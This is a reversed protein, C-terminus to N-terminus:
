GAAQRTPQRWEPSSLRMLMVQAPAWAVVIASTAAVPAVGWLMGTVTGGVFSGLFLATNYAGTATGRAREDAVRTVGAPLLATLGLYGAMFAATGATVALPHGTLLCLASPLFAACCLAAVTTVRGEDARRTAVRMVILGIVAAPILAKWLHRAGLSEALMLPVIFCVATFIYNVLFGAIVLRRLDPTRLLAVLSPGASARPVADDKMGVLVYAWVLAALVACAFFMTPVSVVSYLLPGGLFSAIAAAGVALAAVGMARTRRDEPIGDAIWAYAAGTIAGSGQLARGIIFGLIDRAGATVLLGVVLLATGILVIRKRGLRDSWRGFPIQLLGQLLGYVGLAVGISAPTAGALDRGHIAILPLVM